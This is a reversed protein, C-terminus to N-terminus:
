YVHITTQLKRSYNQTRFGLGRSFCSKIGVDDLSRLLWFDFPIISM